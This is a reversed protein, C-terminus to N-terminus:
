NTQLDDEDAGLDDAATWNDLSFKEFWADLKSKALELSETLIHATEKHSQARCALDYIGKMMEHVYVVQSAGDSESRSVNSGDPIRNKMNKTWRKKIYRDPICDVNVRDFVRLVHSCLIGISEFKHCSCNVSLTCRDFQVLIFRSSDGYPKLTFWMSSTGVVEQQGTVAFNLTERMEQQFLTFIKMTYVKAAQILWPNRGSPLRSHHSRTDKEKEDMRWAEQLKEFALVYDYLSSTTGGFKRKLAAHTGESRSTAKLGASFKHYSFATAWKHRLSYMLNFWDKDEINYSDVMQKWTNEFEEENQCDSMCKNWLTKFSSDNNLSGFHSHAIHNIHCHRFRHYSYPFITEIAREMTECQDTFITEPQKGGMSELFTRFLWEYSSETEESMFAFGFMVNQLHHNVGVFPCCLMNYKNTRYTNEVSLVDGFYEYDISCRYDRFFVNMLRNNENRKVNWYFYPEKNSMSIFHQFLETIDANEIGGQNGTCSVSDRVDKENFQANERGHSLTQLFDYARAMPVGCKIMTEFCKEIDPSMHRASRLLNRQDPPLMDHSHEKRFATVRWNQGKLRAVRLKAKCKCRLTPKLFAPNLRFRKEDESGECSCVFDRAKIGSGDNFREVNDKRVTFGKTHAYVCYLGYAVLENQMPQGVELRNEMEEISLSSFEEEVNARTSSQETGEASESCNLDSCFQLNEAEPSVHPTQEMVYTLSPRCIHIYSLSAIFYYGM